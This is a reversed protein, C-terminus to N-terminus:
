QQTVTSNVGSGSADIPRNAIYSELDADLLSHATTSDAMMYNELQSDLNM